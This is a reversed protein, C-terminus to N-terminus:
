GNTGFRGNDAINTNYTSQIHAPGLCRLGVPHNNLKPRVFVLSTDLTDDNGVDVTFHSAVNDVLASDMENIAPVHDLGIYIIEGNALRVELMNGYELCVYTLTNELNELHVM